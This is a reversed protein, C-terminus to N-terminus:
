TLSTRVVERESSLFYGSVWYHEENAPAVALDSVLDELSGDPGNRHLLALTDFVVTLTSEDETDAQFMEVTDLRHKVVEGIFEAVSAGLTKFEVIKKRTVCKQLQATTFELYNCDYPRWVGAFTTESHLHSHWESFKEILRCNMEICNTGIKSLDDRHWCHPYPGDFKTLPFSKVKLEAMEYPAPCSSANPWAERVWRGHSANTEGVMENSLTCIPLPDKNSVRLIWQDSNSLPDATVDAVAAFTPRAMFVRDDLDGSLCPFDLTFWFSWGCGCFYSTPNTHVPGHYLEVGSMRRRPPPWLASIPLVDDTANPEFFLECGNLGTWPEEIRFFPTAWSQCHPTRACVECCMQAPSYMKFGQFGDHQFNALTSNDPLGPKVVCQSDSTGGIPANGNWILVKADVQYTGPVLLEFPFTWYCPDNNKITNDDGNSKTATALGAFIEPGAVRVWISLKDCQDFAASSAPELSDQPYVNRIVITPKRMKSARTSYDKPVIIEGNENTTGSLLQAILVLKHTHFLYGLGRLKWRYDLNARHYVTERDRVFAIAEDTEEKSVVPHQVVHVLSEVPKAPTVLPISFDKWVMIAALGLMALFVRPLMGSTPTRITNNNGSGGSNRNPVINQLAISSTMTSSAYVLDKNNYLSNSATTSHVITVVGVVIRSKGIPQCM